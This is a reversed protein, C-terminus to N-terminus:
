NEELIGDGTWKLVTEYGLRAYWPAVGTYHIYSYDYGLEKFIETAKKIMTLGIGGRRCEPVTGVCGPGGIKLTKGNITHVGMDEILCFSVLKGDLFGGYVKHKGQYFKVWDAEVKAVAELLTEMDGEYYGFTVNETFEKEYSMRLEGDLPMVMEEMAGWDKPIKKIDEREFFGPHMSHFLEVATERTM